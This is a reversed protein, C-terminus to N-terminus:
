TKLLQSRLHLKCMLKIKMLFRPPNMVSQMVQLMPQPKPKPLRQPWKCKDACPPKWRKLPPM